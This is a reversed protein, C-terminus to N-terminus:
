IGVATEHKFLWWIYSHTDLLKRDSDIVLHLVVVSVRQSSVCLTIPAFSV